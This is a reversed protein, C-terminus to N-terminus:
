DCAVVTREYRWLYLPSFHQGAGCVVFDGCVRQLRMRLGFTGTVLVVLLVNCTAVDRAQQQMCICVSPLYM